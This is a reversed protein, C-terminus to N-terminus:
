VTCMFRSDLDGVFALVIVGADVNDISVQSLLKRPWHSPDFEAGKRVVVCLFM